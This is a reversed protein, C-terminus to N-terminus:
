WADVHEHCPWFYFLHVFSVFHLYFPLLAFSIFFLTQLYFSKKEKPNEGSPCSKEFAYEEPLSHVVLHHSLWSLVKSARHDRSSQTIMMEVKNGQTHEMHFKHEVEMCCSEILQFTHEFAALWKRKWESKYRLSHFLSGTPTQCLRKQFSKLKCSGSKHSAARNRLFSTPLRGEFKVHLFIRSM